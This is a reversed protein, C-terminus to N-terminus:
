ASHTWLTTTDATTNPHILVLGWLAVPYGSADWSVMVIYITVSPSPMVLTWQRAGPALKYMGPQQQSPADGLLNVYITGDAAMLADTAAQMGASFGPLPRWTAGGDTSWVMPYTNPGSFARVDYGLFAGIGPAFAEIAVNNGNYVPTLHTWSVGLSTSRYLDSCGGSTGTCPATSGALVYLTSSDSFIGAAPFPLSTWVFPGGSASAALYQTHSSPTGAPAVDSFFTTGVWGFTSDNYAVLKWHAGGDLSYYLMQQNQGCESRCAAADFAVAQADTPSVRIRGCASAQAPTTSTHWTAGGDTSVSFNIAPSSGTSMSGTCTYITNLASPAFAVADPQPATSQKWGLAALSAPTPTPGPTDSPTLKPIRNSTATPPIPTGGATASAGCGALVLMLLVALVWIVSKWMRM